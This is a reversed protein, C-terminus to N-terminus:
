AFMRGEALCDCLERYVARLRDRDADSGTARLIRRALPGRSLIMDIAPRWWAGITGDGSADVLQGWLDGARLSEGSV